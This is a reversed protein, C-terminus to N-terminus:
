IEFSATAIRTCAGDLDIEFLHPYMAKCYDASTRSFIQLHGEITRTSFTQDASLLERIIDLASEIREEKTVIIPAKKSM